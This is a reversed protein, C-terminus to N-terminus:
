LTGTNVSMERWHGGRTPPLDGEGGVARSRLLASRRSFFTCEVPLFGKGSLTKRRSVGICHFRNGRSVPSHIEM